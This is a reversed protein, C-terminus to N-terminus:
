NKDTINIAITVMAFMEDKTNTIIANNPLESIGPLVNINAATAINM